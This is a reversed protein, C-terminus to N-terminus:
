NAFKGTGTIFQYDDRRRCSVEDFFGDGGGGGGGDIVVVHGLSEAVIIKIFETITVLIGIVPVTIPFFLAFVIWEGNTSPGCFMFRLIRKIVIALWPKNKQEGAAAKKDKALAKKKAEEAEAAAKKSKLLEEMLESPHAKLIRADTTQELGFGRRKCEELRKEAEAHGQKAAREFWYAALRYERANDYLIKGLCFQVEKENQKHAIDLLMSYTDKSSKTHEMHKCAGEVLLIKSKRFLADEYADRPLIQDDVVFKDGCCPCVVQEGVELDTIECEADVRKCFITM